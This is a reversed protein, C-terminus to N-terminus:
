IEKTRSSINWKIYQELDSPRVRVSKGLKVTPLEGSQMLLYAFSKSINLLRAIDSSKLLKEIQMTEPIQNIIPEM